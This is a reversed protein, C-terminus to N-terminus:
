DEKWIDKRRVWQPVVTFYNTQISSSIITDKQAYGKYSIDVTPNYLEIKVSSKTPQSTLYVLWGNGDTLEANGPTHLLEKIVDQLRIPSQRIRMLTSDQARAM